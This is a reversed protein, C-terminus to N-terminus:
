GAVEKATTTKKCKPCDFQNWTVDALEKLASEIQKQIMARVKEPDRLFALRPALSNPMSMLMSRARTISQVIAQQAETRLIM